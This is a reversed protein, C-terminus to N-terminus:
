AGRPRGVFLLHGSMAIGEPRSATSEVFDLWTQQIEGPLDLFLDQRTSTLSEIGAFLLEEFDDDFSARFEAVTAFYAHGLPPALEPDVLGDELFRRYVDRLEVCTEPDLLYGSALGAVRNCGAAMFVGESRLIRRAEGVAQQREALTLLHYLPGLMLVADCRGSDLHSLDIASAVRADLVRDSLGRTKLRVLAADLLRSSVDALYLTCGRRALFEDYHGAGVGIDAVVSNEPVFHALHRQMMAREVPSQQELRTLEYEHGPGDYHEGVSRHDDNLHSVNSGSAATSEATGLTERTLQRGV